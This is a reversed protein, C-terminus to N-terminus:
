NSYRIQEATGGQTANLISWAAEVEAAEPSGQVHELLRVLNERLQPINQAVDWYGSRIFRDRVNRWADEPLVDQLSRLARLNEKSMSFAAEQLPKSMVDFLEKLEELRTEDTFFSMMSVPDMDRLGFRDIENLVQEIAAKCALEFRRYIAIARRAHASLVEDALEASADDLDVRRMIGFLDPAAGENIEGVINRHLLSLRDLARRQREYDLRGLQEDSLLPMISDFFGEDIRGFARIAALAENVIDNVDKRSPIQFQGGWPQATMAVDMLHDMFDAVDTEQLQEFSLNYSEYQGLLAQTQERSLDLEEAIVRVDQVTMPQVIFPYEQANVTSGCLLGGLIVAIWRRLAVM